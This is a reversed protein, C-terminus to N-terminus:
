SQKDLEDWTKEFGGGVRLGNRGGNEPVGDNGDLGHTQFLDPVDLNLAGVVEDPIADKRM